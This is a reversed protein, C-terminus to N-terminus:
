CLRSAAVGISEKTYEIAYGGDCHAGVSDSEDDFRSTSREWSGLV